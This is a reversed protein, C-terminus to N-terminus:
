VQGFGRQCWAEEAAASSFHSSLPCAIDCGRSEVIEPRVQVELVAGIDWFLSYLCYLTWSKPCKPLGPVDITRSCTQIGGEVGSAQCRSELSDTPATRFQEEWCLAQILIQVM